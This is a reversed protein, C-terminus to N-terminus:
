LLLRLDFIRCKNKNKVIMNLYKNFFNLRVFRSNLFTLCSQAMCVILYKDTRALIESYM